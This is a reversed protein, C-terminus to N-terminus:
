EVYRRVVLVESRVAAALEKKGAHELKAAAHEREEIEALLVRRVDNRSLLLREIETSGGAIEHEISAPGPRLPPAEANDLAAVLARVVKLEAANGQKMAERLDTRLREKMERAADELEMGSLRERSGRNGPVPVRM